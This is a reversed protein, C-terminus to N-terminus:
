LGKIKKRKLKPPLLPLIKKKKEKNGELKWHTGVMNELTRTHEGLGGGGFM